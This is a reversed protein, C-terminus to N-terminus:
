SIVSVDMFENSRALGLSFDDNKLAFGAWGPTRRQTKRRPQEMAVGLVLLEEVHIPYVFIPHHFMASIWGSFMTAKRFHPYREKM